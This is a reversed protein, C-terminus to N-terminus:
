ELVYVDYIGVSDIKEGNSLVYSLANQDIQNGSGLEGPNVLFLTNKMNKIENVLWSSGHYGLNGQNILDFYGCKEDLIIKFYYADPVLYIINKDKHQSVYNLVDLTFQYSDYTLYRYEFHNINNPYNKFDFQNFRANLFGIFLVSCISLLGYNLYRRKVKKLIMLLFALFAVFFHYFDIIPIAISYFCLTYVNLIDGRDKWIFYITFLVMIVFVLGLFHFIKQNGTFDFLGLLCLNVFSSFSNTVFLSVLFCLCPLLIFFFRIILYKKDKWYFIISPIVLFLGVTHKVLISCGLLFGISSHYWLSNSKQCKEELFLILVLLAFLFINYNPMSVNIPFFLFLFIIWMKERYMQELLFVVGTLIFANAIHFVLMNASFLHFFLSMLWPYFPPIVMNFDLYAVEGRYMNNVFGFNWVEDLNLPSCILNFVLLFLFIFSYKIVKKWM